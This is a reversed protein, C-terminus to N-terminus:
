WFLALESLSCFAPGWPTSADLAASPLGSDEAFAVFVFFSTQKGTDLRAALPADLPAVLVLM